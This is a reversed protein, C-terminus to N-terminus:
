VDSGRANIVVSPSLSRPQFAAGDPRQSTVDDCGSVASSSASTRTTAACCPRVIWARSVDRLVTFLRIPSFGRVPGFELTFLTISNDSGSAAIVTQQHGLPNTGLPCVDLGLGIKVTRPLRAKSLIHAESTKDNPLQLLILEAGGREPANQLLLLTTPNLFRLARFKPRATGSKPRPISFVTKVDPAANSRTSSSIEGIVVDVGTTYAIRFKGKVSDNELSAFDLDEAEENGSLRIRGIVDSESPTETARFFVIEGSPALGTAIAGIRVNETHEDEEARYKRWPSLRLVRQYTDASSAGGKTKFLSARSLPTVKGPILSGETPVEEKKTEGEEDDVIAEDETPLVVALERHPADFRFSRLHQNNNKKVQEVSSNIGALAVLENADDSQPAAALSTVSDEDRSLELVM